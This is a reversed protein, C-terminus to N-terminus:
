VWTTKRDKKGKELILWTLALALLFLIAVIYLKNQGRQRPPAIPLASLDALPWEVLTYTGTM